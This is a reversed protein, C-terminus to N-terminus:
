RFAQRAVNSSQRFEDAQGVRVTSKELKCRQDLQLARQGFRRVEDALQGGLLGDLCQGDEEVNWIMFDSAREATLAREDARAEQQLM